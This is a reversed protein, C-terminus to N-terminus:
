TTAARLEDHRIQGTEVPLVVRFEAGKPSRNHASIRGGHASVLERCIALGLGTGGAGTRTKSSQIFKDFVAELESEPIGVGEDAVSLHLDSHGPEPPTLTVIIRSGEPSFKVANSLLNRVVQSIRRGDLRGYIPQTSGQLTVHMAKQALLPAFEAACESVLNVVDVRERELELRGSELKALDLLDNVLGLLRSGSDRISVFYHLLKEPSAAQMRKAGLDAFALVAHLPTRLEHSMNALFDSKARNAAEAADRALALERTRREVERELTQNQCALHRRLASLELQTRVRAGLETVQFPKTVYDVGGAQFGALKSDTDALATMFIVPIDALEPEAKLRRCTEFGDIGPMMVDLLILDPRLFRTRELAEFGDQAVGVELGQEELYDVAVSLNAPVDDVILIIQGNRADVSM